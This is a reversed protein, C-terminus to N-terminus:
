APPTRAFVYNTVRAAGHRKLLAALEGLTHGSTMVDDVLGIHRGRVLVASQPILAFANRINSERERPAVSSQARTDIRRAVLRPALPLGLEQALPRAIELAQNFGREVLRAAGLPVPCLLDPLPLEPRARVADALARACWPAAALEAAFKLRLVLQDLPPGYDVAAVTADFAPTRAICRPCRAAPAADFPNACCPCRAQPRAVFDAHCPECVLERAAMGCLACHSPLAARLVASLWRRWHPSIHM